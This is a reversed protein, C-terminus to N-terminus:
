GKGQPHQPGQRTRQGARPAAEGGSLPQPKLAMEGGERRRRQLTRSAQREPDMRAREWPRRLSPTGAAAMAAARPVRTPRPQREGCGMGGICGGLGQRHPTSRPSFSQAAPCPRVLEMRTFPKPALISRQTTLTLPRPDFNLPQVNLIISCQLIPYLTLCHSHTPAVQQYLHANATKAENVFSGFSKRVTAPPASERPRLSPPPSAGASEKGSARLRALPPRAYPM